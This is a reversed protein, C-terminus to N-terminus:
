MSAISWASSLLSGPSDIRAHRCAYEEASLWGPQSPSRVTALAESRRLANGPSARSAAARARSVYQIANKRARCCRESLPTRFEATTYTQDLKMWERTDTSCAAMALAILLVGSTLTHRM